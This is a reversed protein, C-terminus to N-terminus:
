LIQGAPSIGAPSPCLGGTPMASIPTGDDPVIGAANATASAAIVRNRGAAKAAYLARDAAEMTEELRRGDRIAVGFSATVATEPGEASWDRRTLRSRVREAMDVADTEALGPLYLVFEEGGFRAIVSREGAVARLERAVGAIVRDGAAHGHADNIRKFHDIDCIIVAGQSTAIDRVAQEFGRRNRLGTLPDVIAETQLREVAAATMALIASFPFLMCLTVTSVHAAINYASHLFAALDSSTEHIFTFYVARFLCDLAVLLSAVILVTDAARRIGRISPLVSALILAMFVIEILFLDWKLNPMVLVLIVHPPIFALVLGRRLRHQMPQQFHILVASGYCYAAGTYFLGSVLQDFAPQIPFASLSFGGATQAFGAAWQWSSSLGLRWLLLFACAVIAFLTFPLYFLVNQLGM